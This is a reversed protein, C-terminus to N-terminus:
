TLVKAAIINSLHYGRSCCIDLDQVIINSKLGAKAEVNVARQMMDEFSVFEQNQQKIEVKISLKRKKWFYCIM